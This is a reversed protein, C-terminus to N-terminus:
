DFAFSQGITLTFEGVEKGEEMGELIWTHSALICGKMITMKHKNNATARVYVDFLLTCM